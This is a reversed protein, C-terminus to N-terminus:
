DERGLNAVLRQRVRSGQRYSQVLKIYTYAKGNKRTTVRKTYM